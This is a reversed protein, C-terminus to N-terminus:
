EFTRTPMPTLGVRAGIEVSLEHPTYSANPPAGDSVRISISSMTQRTLRTSVRYVGDPSNFSDTAAEWDTADEDWVGGFNIDTDPNWPLRQEWMQSGDYYVWMRLTHPGHYKGTLGIRRVLNTGMLLESLRLGSMRWVFEFRSGADTSVGPDEVLVNGTPTVLWPRGGPPCAAGAVELGSWTAWRNQSYDWLLATGDATYWRAESLGMPSVCATPTLDVALPEVPGSIDSVSFGTTLLKPGKASWYVVGPEVTCTGEHATAGPGALVSAPPFFGNGFADPGNGGLVLPRQDTFVVLADSLVSMSKIPRGGPDIMVSGVIDSFGAGETAAWQKSFVAMGSQIDGGALWLRDGAVTVVECAPPSATELVSAQQGAAPNHPDAPSDIIDADSSYDVFTVSETERDHFDTLGLLRYTTGNTAGENRYVEFRCNRKGVASMSYITLTVTDNPAVVPVEDTTQCPSRFIEGQANQWVMYVRYRYNGPALAGSGNDAEGTVYPAYPFGVEDVTQGDYAQLCAGAFYTTKGFQAWRLPPLMDMIRVNLLTNDSGIGSVAGVSGSCTLWTRTTTENPYDSLPDPWVSPQCVTGPSLGISRYLKAAGQDAYGIVKDSMSLFRVPQAAEDTFASRPGRVGFMWVAVNDGCRFARSCLLANYHSNSTSAGSTSLTGEAVYKSGGAVSVDVNAYIRFRSRSSLATNAVHYEPAIAVAIDGASGGAVFQDGTMLAAGAPSFVQAAVVTPGAEDQWIVGITGDRHVAVGLASAPGTYGSRALTTGPLAPTTKSDAGSYYAMVLDAGDSWVLLHTESDIYAVDFPGDCNGITDTTTWTQPSSESAYSRRVTLVDSDRWYVIFRGASYIVRVSERTAAASALTYLAQDHVPAGTDREYVAVRVKDNETYAVCFSTTGLAADWFQPGGDDKAATVRLTRMSPLWARIGYPYKDTSQVAWHDSGYGIENNSGVSLLRDGTWALVEGDRTCAGGGRNHFRSEISWENDAMDTTLTGQGFLWRDTSKAGLIAIVASPTRTDRLPFGTHGARRTITKDDDFTANKLEALAEVQRNQPATRLDVGLAGVAVGVPQWAFAEADQNSQKPRSM